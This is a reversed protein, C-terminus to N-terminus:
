QLWMGKADEDPGLGLKEDGGFYTAYLRSDDLKFEQRYILCDPQFSCSVTPDDIIVREKKLPLTLALAVPPCSSCILHTIFVRSVFCRM